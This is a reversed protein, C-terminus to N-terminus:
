RLELSHEAGELLVVGDVGGIVFQTGPPAAAWASAHETGNTDRALLRMYSTGGLAVRQVAVHRNGVQLQRVTEIQSGTSPPLSFVEDANGGPTSPLKASRRGTTNSTGDDGSGYQTSSKM